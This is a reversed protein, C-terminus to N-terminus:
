WQAFSVFWYLIVVCDSNVVCINSVHMGNTDLISINALEPVLTVDPNDSTLVAEFM